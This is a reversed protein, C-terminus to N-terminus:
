VNKAEREAGHARECDCHEMCCNDNCNCDTKKAVERKFYFTVIVSMVREVSVVSMLKWGEQAQANLYREQSRNSPGVLSWVKYEWM